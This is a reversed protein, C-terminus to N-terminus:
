ATAVTIGLSKKLATEAEAETDFVDNYMRWTHQTDDARFLAFELDQTDFSPKEEQTSNDDSIPNLKAKSLVFPMYLDNGNSKYRVIWGLGVYPAVTSDGEHVWGDADPEPAGSVLKRAALTLGDVTLTVKGGTFYGGASEAAGNDAYGTVDDASDPSIKAEVGRALVQGKTYTVTGASASYLAVYPKSFGTSFMGAALTKTTAM